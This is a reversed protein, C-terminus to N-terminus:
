LQWGIGLLVRENDLGGGTWHEYAGLLYDPVYWQGSPLTVSAGIGFVGIATGDNASNLRTAAGAYILPTLTLLGNPRAESQLLHLPVQLTLNAQPMFVEGDIAELRLTPVVYESLRYGIALGGGIKDTTLDYVGYPVVVYNSGVSLFEIIPSYVPTSNTQAKAPTLALLLLAIALLSKIITKM